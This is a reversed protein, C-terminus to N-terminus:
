MRSAQLFGEINSFPRMTVGPSSVLAQLNTHEPAIHNTSRPQSVPHHERGLKSNPPSRIRTFLHLRVGRASDYHDPRPSTRLIFEFERTSTRSYRSRHWSTMAISCKDHLSPSSAWGSCSPISEMNWIPQLSRSDLRRSRILLLYRDPYSCTYSGHRMQLCATSM